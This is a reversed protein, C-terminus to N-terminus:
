NLKVMKICDRKLGSSVNWMIPYENEREFSYRNKDAYKSPLWGAKDMLELATQRYHDGYGYQFEGYLIEGTEVNTVNVSHYTNGNVKDFWKVANCVFKIKNQTMTDM